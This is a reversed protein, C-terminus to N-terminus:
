TAARLVVSFPLLEHGLFINNKDLELATSIRAEEVNFLLVRFLLRLLKGELFVIRNRALMNDEAFGLQFLGM